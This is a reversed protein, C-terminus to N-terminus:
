VESEIYMIDYNQSKDLLLITLIKNRRGARFHSM